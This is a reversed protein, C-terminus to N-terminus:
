WERIEEDTKPLRGSEDEIQYVTCEVRPIKEVPKQYYFRKHLKLHAYEHVITFRIRGEVECELASNDILIWGKKVDLPIEQTRDDNWVMLIEDNFCACGLVSGDQSLNAYDFTAGNQEAFDDVDMAQPALLLAGNKYKQLIELAKKELSEASWMHYL